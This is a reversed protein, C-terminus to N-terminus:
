KSFLWKNNEDFVEIQYFSDSLIPLTKKFTEADKETLFPTAHTATLWPLEKPSGVPILDDQNNSHNYVWYTYNM